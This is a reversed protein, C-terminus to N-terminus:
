SKAVVVVTYYLMILGRVFRFSRSFHALLAPFHLHFLIFSSHSRPYLLLFTSIFVFSSSPHFLVSDLFFFLLRIIFVVCSLGLPGIMRDFRMITIRM